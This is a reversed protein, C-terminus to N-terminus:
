HWTSLPWQESDATETGPVSKNDRFAVLMILLYSGHNIQAAIKFCSYPMFTFESEGQTGPDSGEVFNVHMPEQSVDIEFLVRQLKMDRDYSNQMFTMAISRISSSALPMPCRYCKGNEFFDLAEVPMATGRVTKQSQPFPSPQISVRYGGAPSTGPLSGVLEERFAIMFTVAHTILPKKDDRHARAIMSCFEVDEHGGDELRHQSTWDDKAKLAISGGPTRTMKMLHFLREAAAVPMGVSDAHLRIVTKVAEDYEEESIERCSERPVWLKRFESSLFSRAEGEGDELNRRVVITYPATMQSDTLRQLLNAM